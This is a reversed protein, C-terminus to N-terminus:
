YHKHFLNIKVIKGYLIYLDESAKPMVVLANSTLEHRLM